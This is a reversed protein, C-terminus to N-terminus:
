FPLGVIIFPLDLIFLPMLAKLYFEYLIVSFDIFKFYFQKSNTLSDM